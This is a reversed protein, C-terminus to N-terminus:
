SPPSSPQPHLSVVPSLAFTFPTFRVNVNDFRDQSVWNYVPANAVGVQLVPTLAPDTHLCTCLLVSHMPPVTSPLLLATEPWALRCCCRGVSCGIDYM